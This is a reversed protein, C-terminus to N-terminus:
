FSKTIFDLLRVIGAKIECVYFIAVLIFFKVM